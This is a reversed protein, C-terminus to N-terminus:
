NYVKPFSKRTFFITITLMLFLHCVVQECTKTYKKIKLFLKNITIARLLAVLYTTVLVKVKILTSQVINLIHIHIYTYTSLVNQM